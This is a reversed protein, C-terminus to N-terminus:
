LEEAFRPALRAFVMWGIALAVASTTAMKAWTIATPFQLDYM